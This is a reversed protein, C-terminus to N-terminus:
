IHILSLALTPALFYSPDHEPLHPKLLETAKDPLRAMVALAADHFNGDKAEELKKAWFVEPPTAQCEAWWARAKREITKLHPKPEFLGTREISWTLLKDAMLKGLVQAAVEGVTLVRWYRDNMLGTEVYTLRNDQLADLLAPIAPEGVSVLQEAATNDLAGSGFPTAFPIKNFTRRATTYQLQNILGKVDKKRAM